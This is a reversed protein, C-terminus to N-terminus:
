RYIGYEKTFEIMARVNEPKATDLTAGPSLIFGGGKGDVDILQKCYAKVDDTTGTSLIAAPVNGYICARDGLVEKARAMDTQDFRWVVKGKPLDRIIELRTNYSGEAFLLPILGEDVLGLILKRLTPWYFTKYQEDSMFGDAGKHLPILVLPTAASRADSVGLEIMLPTLREIAEILKGQQRYMDLMIGRTGRLTDGLVDFPAKCHGGHLIPFGAAMVRKNSTTLAERWKMAQEGAEFLADFAARIEPRGYQSVFSSVDGMEIVRHFPSLKSFPELVGIIRPLYVRMWFDSPDQILADYEDAKMYEAEVCQLPMNVGVGHGPWLFLKYDIIDYVQGLGYPGHHADPAFDFTYKEYAQCAKDYDYMAERTTIGAYYAPSFGVSSIVPVRDPMKLQIADKIRTARERYAKEAEPSIFDIGQPALWSGFMEELEAESSLVAKEKNM